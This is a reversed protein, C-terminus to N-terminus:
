KPVVLGTASEDHSVNPWQAADFRPATLRYSVEFSSLHSVPSSPQVYIVLRQNAADKEYWVRGEFSPTLLVALNNFNNKLNTAKSFLWLDSGQEAANFDIVYKCTGEGKDCPVQAM